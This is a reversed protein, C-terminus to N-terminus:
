LTEENETTYCLSRIECLERHQVTPGWQGDMGIIVTQMSFGWVEWGDWQWGGGGYFGCTQKGQGHDTQKISLIM